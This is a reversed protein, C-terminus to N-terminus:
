DSITTFSWVDGKYVYGGWQVDIRWYYQTNVLLKPLLGINHEGSLSLQFEEDDMTAYKTFEEDTGFYIHHQDAIYGGLFMVADRLYSVSSGNPPIPTTAKYLKRGPIWYTLSETGSEYPGILENGQTLVGEEVPRFDWNDADVLNSKVDLNFYNNEVIEGPIPWRGGDFVNKGGDAKMAANNIVDTLNNQIYTDHRLKYIVCIDCDSDSDISLNNEITHNDGKTMIGSTNWIVNFGQYGSLGGHDGDFRLGHKPSDHVWNHSVFAGSQGAAQIQIGSGDNQIKGACQGIIHNRKVTPSFGVRLGSTAGNYWMTNSSFETDRGWGKITGGNRDDQGTWDNWWFLNNHIYNNLGDHILSVGESGVFTCNIVSIRGIYSSWSEESATLRTQKPIDSSGLMRHSSSPFKFYISQLTIEDINMDSHHPGHSNFAHVTSAIFTMNAITVGTANTISLGYDITRGRLATTSPDPCNGNPPILYLTKSSKEYVWEGPADLLALGAELYYQNGNSLWHVNGMDHNYTFNNTGPEHNLVPRVYTVWSGINLIAMSGTANIGSEALGAKGDDIIHGYSSQSSCQGWFSNDFITKDSWLANPWRAATLIDDNFLLAFIDEELTASCIGTEEDFNWHTPQIPITGDWIPREDFYGKITYPNEASGKLGQLDIEEHYRGDRILCQDGPPSISLEDVCRQITKFAHHPNHGNNIDAGNEGDVIYSFSDVGGPTFLLVMFLIFLM